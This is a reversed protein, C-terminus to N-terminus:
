CGQWSKVTSYAFTVVGPVSSLGDLCHSFLCHPLLGVSPLTATDLQLDFRQFYAKLLEGLKEDDDILLIRTM